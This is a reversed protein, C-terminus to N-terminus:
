NGCAHTKRKQLKTFTTNFEGSNSHQQQNRKKLSNANAKYISTSRCHTCIYKCNNYRRRPNIRQYNDLSKKAEQLM